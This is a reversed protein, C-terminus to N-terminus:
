TNQPRPFSFSALFNIATDRSYFTGEVKDGNNYKIEIEFKVIPLSGSTETYRKLFDIARDIKRLNTTTGHLPIISIKTIYRSISKKLNNFFKNIESNNLEILHNGLHEKKNFKNWLDIKQEFNTEDTTEVSNADIGFDKFRKMILDYPFYVVNFGVSKLQTIAGQTFKGALIVGIFPAFQSNSSVLPLIAGQIEQAKNRSHKTYRRWASEIFAVPEGIKEDTGNRELVFDLEHSNGFSDKWIVKKSPRAARIGQKDLYLNNNDAFKSLEGLFVQELFDGIIQGWRHAASRAM